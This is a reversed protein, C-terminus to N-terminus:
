ADGRIFARAAEGAASSFVNSPIPNNNVHISYSNSGRSSHRNSGSSNTNNNRKNSTSKDKGGPANLSAATAGSWEEETVQWHRFRLRTHRQLTVLRRLSIKDYFKALTPSTFTLEPYDKLPRHHFQSATLSELAKERSAMDGELDLPSYSCTDGATSHPSALVFCALVSYVYILLAPFRTTFYRLFGGPLDGLEERIEMPLDRYHNRKNRIVRLCDRVSSFDYKRYKHLNDLLGQHLVQDWRPGVVAEAQSELCMRMESHVPESEFRDSAELLFQLQQESSWFFPHAVVDEASMRLSPDSHLMCGILDRAEPSFSLASLDMRGHAINLEREVTEGFPHQGKTLVFFMVCGASFVDVAKTLRGGNANLVEPAQWGVSGSVVSDFSSRALSLQKGLGMDALKALGQKTILINGPKIDRHVIHLEHLHALGTLMGHLMQKRQEMEEPSPALAGAQTRTRDKERLEEVLDQVSGVCQELALYIFSADEEKAYYRLVNPHQDSQILLSIEQAANASGFFPKVLRKIACPRGECTGAYVITGMSGTGLVRTPYLRMCGVVVSGDSQTIPTSLTRALTPEASSSSPHSTSPDNSSSNLASIDPRSQITKRSRITSSGGSSTNQSRPSSVASVDSPNTSAGGGGVGVSLGPVLPGEIDYTSFHTKRPGLGGSTPPSSSVTPVPPSASASVAGTASAAVAEPSRTPFVGRHYERKLRKRAGATLPATDGDEKEDDDDYAEVVGINSAKKKQANNNLAGNPANSAATSSTSSKKNKSKRRQKITKGALWIMLGSVAVSLLVSTALLSWWYSNSPPSPLLRHPPTSQRNTSPLLPLRPRTSGDSLSVLSEDDEDEEVHEVWPDGHRGSPVGIAPAGIPKISRNYFDASSQLLLPHHRALGAGGTGLDVAHFGVLCSPYSPSSPVCSLDQSEDQDPTYPTAEAHEDHARETLATISPAGATRKTPTTASSGPGIALNHSSHTSHPHSHPHSSGVLFPHKGNVGHPHPNPLAYILGNKTQGIYTFATVESLDRARYYHALMSQLLDNGEEASLDFYFHPMKIIEGMSSMLLATATEDDLDRDLDVEQDAAHIPLTTEPRVLLVSTVPAHVDLSWLIRQDGVDLAYVQGNVSVGIEPYGLAQLEAESPNISPFGANSGSSGVGDSSDFPAYTSISVNWRLSGTRGDIAHVSLATKALWVLNPDCGDTNDDDCMDQLGFTRTSGMMNGGRNANFVKKLEGSNRQILFIDMEKCGLYKTNDGTRFPAAEVLESLTIPLRHLGGVGSYFLSGDVGPIMLPMHSNTAHATSNHSITSSSRSSSSSKKHRKVVREEESEAGILEPQMVHRRRREERDKDRRTRREREAERMEREKERVFKRDKAREKRRDEISSRDDVDMGMGYELGDDGEHPTTSSDEGTEDLHARQPHGSHTEDDQDFILDGSALDENLRHEEDLEDYSQSERLHQHYRQRAEKEAQRMEEMTKREFETHANEDDKDSETGSGSTASGAGPGFSWLIEGNVLDVAHLTGDLTSILLTGDPTPSSSHSILVPSSSSASSSPSSSSSADSAANPSNSAAHTPRERESGRHRTSLATLFSVPCLILFLCLYIFILHRRRPPRSM